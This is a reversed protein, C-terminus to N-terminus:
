LDTTRRAAIFSRISLIVFILCVLAMSAQSIVAASFSVASLNSLLRGAPLLFGLLGLVVAVHMLHKRLNEKARGIIGLLALLIGFAAPILATLSAHGTSIGYLYGAIGIIILLGGFYIATLTM